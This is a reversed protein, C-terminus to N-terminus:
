WWLITRGIFPKHHTILHVDNTEYDHYYWSGNDDKWYYWRGGIVYSSCREEETAPRFVSRIGFCKLETLTIDDFQENEIVTHKHGILQAKICKHLAKLTGVSFSNMIYHTVIM